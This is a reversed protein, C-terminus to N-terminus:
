VSRADFDRLHKGVVKVVYVLWLIMGVHLVDNESFYFGQGKKYLAATIGAGYYTFYAANVVVLLVAAGFLSGDLPKRKRAYQIGSVLIVL